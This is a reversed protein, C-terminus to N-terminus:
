KALLLVIGCALWVTHHCCLGPAASGTKTMAKLVDVGPFTIQFLRCSPACFPFARYTLTLVHTDM